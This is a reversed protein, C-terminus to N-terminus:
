KNLLTSKLAKLRFQMRQHFDLIDYMEGTGFM